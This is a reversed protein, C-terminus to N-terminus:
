RKEMNRTDILNYPYWICTSLWMLIALGPGGTSIISVMRLAGLLSESLNNVEEMYASREWQKFAELLMPEGQERGPAMADKSLVRRRLLARAAEESTVTPVENFPNLVFEADIMVGAGGAEILGRRRELRPRLAELLAPTTPLPVRVLEAFFPDAQAAELPTEGADSMALAQTSYSLWAEYRNRRNRREMEAFFGTAIAAVVGCAMWCLPGPPDGPAANLATWFPMGNTDVLVWGSSDPLMEYSQQMSIGGVFGCLHDPPPPPPLVSGAEATTADNLMWGLFGGVENNAARAAPVFAGYELLPMNCVDATAAGPAAPDVLFPAGAVADSVGEMAVMNSPAIGSLIGKVWVGCGTALPRAVAVALVTDTIVSSIGITLYLSMQVLPYRFTDIMVNWSKTEEDDMDGAYDDLAAQELEPIIEDSISKAIENRAERATTLFQRLSDFPGIDQNIRVFNGGNGELPAEDWAELWRGEMRVDSPSPMAAAAEQMAYFVGYPICWALWVAAEDPSDPLVRWAAPMHLWDACACALWAALPMGAFACSAYLFREWVLAVEDDGGSNNNNNSISTATATTTADSSSTTTVDDQKQEEQNPKPRQGEEETSSALFEEFSATATTIRERDRQALVDAMIREVCADMDANVDEIANEIMVRTKEDLKDYEVDASALTTMFMQRRFEPDALMDMLQTADSALFETETTKAWSALVDEFEDSTSANTETETETETEDVSADNLIQRFSELSVDDGESSLLDAVKSNQSADRALAGLKAIAEREAPSMREGVDVSASSADVSPSPDELSTRSTPPGINASAPLGGVLKSAPLGGGGGGAAPKRLRLSALASDIDRSSSESSSSSSSSSASGSGSRGGGGGGGGSVSSCSVRSSSSGSGLGGFGLGFPLLPRGGGGRPRAGGRPHPGGGGGGGRPGRLCKVPKQAAM